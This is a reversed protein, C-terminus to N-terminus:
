VLGIPEPEAPKPWYLSVPLMGIKVDGACFQTTAAANESRIANVVAGVGSHDNNARWSWKEESVIM